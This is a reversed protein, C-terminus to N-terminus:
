QLRREYRPSPGAPPSRRADRGGGELVDEVIRDSRETTWSIIDLGAKRARHAFTSPVIRDGGTDTTLLVPMPPAIINVGDKKVAKFEGLAPPNM